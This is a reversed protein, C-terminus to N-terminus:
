TVKFIASTQKGSGDTLVLQYYNNPKYSRVSLRYEKTSTCLHNCKRPDTCLPECVKIAQITRLVTCTTPFQSPAAFISQSTDTACQDVRILDAYGKPSPVVTFSLGRDKRNIINRPLFIFSVAPIEKPILPTNIFKGTSAKAVFHGTINNGQNILTMFGIFLISIALIIILNQKM